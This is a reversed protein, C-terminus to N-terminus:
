SDPMDSPQKAALHEQFIRELSDASFAGKVVYDKVLDWQLSREKDDDKHSATFMVVVTSGLESDAGVHHFSELFGFGDMIPMNIDLFVLLPPYTQPDKERKAHYDSFMELAEVGNTAELVEIDRSLKALRRQLIYRDTKNDDVILVSFIM